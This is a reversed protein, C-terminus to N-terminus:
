KVEVLSIVDTKRKPQWNWPHGYNFYTVWKCRYLGLDDAGTSSVYYIYVGTAEHSGSEPGMLVTGDPKYVTVNTINGSCDVYTSGSTYVVQTKWTSGREFETVM